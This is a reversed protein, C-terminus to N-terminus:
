SRIKMFHIILKALTSYMNIELNILYKTWKSIILMTTIPLKSFHQFYMCFIFNGYM